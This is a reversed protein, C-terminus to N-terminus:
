TRDQLVWCIGKPMWFETKPGDLGVELLVLSLLVRERKTYVKMM